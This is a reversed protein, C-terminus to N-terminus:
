FLQSYAEMCSDLEDFSDAVISAAFYLAIASETTLGGMPVAGERWMRRSTSYDSFNLLSQQQSTCFFKCGKKRGKILLPKLSYDSSRMSGTGTEYLELFIYRVGEDVLRLYIESRLGPYVKCVLMKNAADKLIQKLVYMDAEALVNGQKAFPGSTCTYVPKKMNWNTFGDPSPKEFKLNLPSLLKGNFAVYVGNKKNCATKVAFNLNLEAEDSSDPVASSATIVVPVGCDSFLWFLLPATYALTDTGHAVVIGNATGTAIRAAVEAILAAWDSPEIEESLLKGVPVVQYHVSKDTDALLSRLVQSDAASVEGNQRRDACIAGGMSLVYVISINLEKKLLQKVVQPSALGNTKKMVLGTLFELPAMEGMRLKESEVPNTEVVSKVIPYLIETDTIKRWNNRKILDVPNEGTEIVAQLLQKAISSHIEGSLLLNMITSFYEPTLLSHGISKGNRRLLKILESSIWHAATMPEAGANVSAEFFDARAKEDCILEARERALGYERCFRKRREEPQELEIIADHESSLFPSFDFVTLPCLPEFQHMDANRPQYFETLNQRENWLRSESEIEGGSSLIQEQRDIESNIAKRVFNFSNLNRLKVYYGPLDPYRSLAVYANCRILADVPEAESMHMYQLMRRLENLFLEAEEGLEFDPATKIRLSPCGGWTYDMRPNGSSRTLRGADEELRIEDIIIKKKRHHFEIEMFGKEGLKVSLGSFSCNEPVSPKSVLKEFISEKLFQVNLSQAFVVAKKVASSILEPKNGSIFTQKEKSILIRVELFVHSQFM